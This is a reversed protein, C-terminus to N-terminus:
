LGSSLSLMYYLGKTTARLIYTLVKNVKIIRQLTVTNEKLFIYRTFKNHARQM